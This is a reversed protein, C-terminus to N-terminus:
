GSERASRKLRAFLQRVSRGSIPDVWQPVIALLPRLVFDRTRFLRHPISLGPASYIGGSWLIIDLDLTRTGWRQGRRRGFSAETIKLLDLLQEPSLDTEVVAASNAYRRRSPGIPATEIIPASTLINLGDDNLAHLAAVIVQSPRGYRHHRQNSGLAVVYLHKPGTPM